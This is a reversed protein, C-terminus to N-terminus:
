RVCGCRRWLNPTIRLGRFREPYGGDGSAVIGEGYYAAIQQFSKQQAQYDLFDDLPLSQLDDPRDAPGRGLYYIQWGKDVPLGRLIAGQVISFMTTTLGIGLALAAVATSASTRAALHADSGYRLHGLLASM